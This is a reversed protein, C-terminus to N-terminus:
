CIRAACIPRVIEQVSTARTSIYEQNNRHYYSFSSLVGGSARSNFLIWYILNWLIGFWSYDNIYWLTLWSPLFFSEKLSGLTMMLYSFKLLKTEAHFRYACLKTQSAFIYGHNDPLWDM